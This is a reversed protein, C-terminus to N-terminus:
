KKSSNGTVGLLIGLEYNVTGQVIEMVIFGDKGRNM